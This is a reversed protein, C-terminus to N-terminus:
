IEGGGRPGPHGTIPHGKDNVKSILTKIIKHSSQILCYKGTNFILAM